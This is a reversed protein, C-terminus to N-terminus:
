DAKTYTAAHSKAWQEAEEMTALDEVLVTKDSERLVRFKRNRGLKAVYGDPMAIVRDIEPEDAETAPIPTLDVKRLVHVKASLRDSAVVILEAFYAGNAPRVEIRDWPRLKAAVHAWFEPQLVAKFPQSEDPYIVHISREYEASKFSSSTLSVSKNSM